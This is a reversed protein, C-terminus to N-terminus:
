PRLARYASREVWGELGTPIRIRCWADREDLLQLPLGAHATFAEPADGAPATRVVAQDAILVAHRVGYDEHMRWAALPGFIALVLLAAGAVIALAVRHRSRVWAIAALGLILWAVGAIVAAEAATLRSAVADFLRMLFQEDNKPLEDRRFAEAYRLNFRLDDDRPALRLGM